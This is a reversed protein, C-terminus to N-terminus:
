MGKVFSPHVGEISGLIRLSDRESLSRWRSRANFQLQEIGSFDQNIVTM